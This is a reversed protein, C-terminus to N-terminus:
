SIFALVISSHLSPYLLQISLCTYSLWNVSFSFLSLEFTTNRAKTNEFNEESLLYTGKILDKLKIKIINKDQKSKDLAEFINCMELVYFQSYYNKAKDRQIVENLKDQSINRSVEIENLYAFYQKIRNLNHYNIKFDSYIRKIKEEYKLLDSFKYRNM